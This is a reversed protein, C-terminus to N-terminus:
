APAHRLMRFSLAGFVLAAVGPAVTLFLELSGDGGDPELNLLREIWEPGIVMTLAFAVTSLLAAVAVVTRLVM